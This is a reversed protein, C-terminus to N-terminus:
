VLTNQIDVKQISQYPAPLPQWAVVDDIASEHLDYYRGYARNPYRHGIARGGQKTSILVNEFPEPLRESYPIWGNNYKEAEQKAIEIVVDVPIMYNGSNKSGYLKVSSDSKIKEVIKEFVKQMDSM